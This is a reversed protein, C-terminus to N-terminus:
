KNRRKDILRIAKSLITMEEFSFFVNKVNNCRTCCPVVNNLVYGKTSDKRDLGCGTLPLENKCYFCSNNILKKYQKISLEWIIDRKEAVIRAATFKGQLTKRYSRAYIKADLTIKAKTIPDKRRAIAYNKCRCKNCQIKDQYIYFRSSKKTQCIQCQRKKIKM